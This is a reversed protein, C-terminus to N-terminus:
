LYIGTFVKKWPRRLANKAFNLMCETCREYMWSAQFISEAVRSEATTVQYHKFHNSINEFWIQQMVQFEGKSKGAKSIVIPLLHMCNRSMRFLNDSVDLTHLFFTKCVRVWIGDVEFYYKLTFNRRSTNRLKKRDRVTHESIYDRQRNIDGLRWFNHFLDERRHQLLREHCRLRCKPGCGPKM